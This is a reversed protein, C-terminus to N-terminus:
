LVNTILFHVHIVVIELFENWGEKKKEKEFTELHTLIELFHINM